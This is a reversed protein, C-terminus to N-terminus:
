KLDKSAKYYYYMTNGQMEKKVKDTEQKAESAINLTKMFTQVANPAIVVMSLSFIWNKLVDMAGLMTNTTAISTVLGGVLCGAKKRIEEDALVKRGMNKLVTTETALENLEEVRPAVEKSYIKLCDYQFDKDWPKSKIEESFSYIASRFRVLPAQMEKKFDLIEDVTASELTPLTMLINTALGAHVLAEQNINGLDFLKSTSLSSIIDNSTKDFLPYATENQITGLLNGFYGGALAEFNFNDDDYPFVSVINREVLNMIAEAGTSSTLQKMCDNLLAKSEELANNAKMQAIIEQKTRNKKKRLHIGYPAIQEKMRELQKSMEVSDNADIAKLLPIFSDLLSEIDRVSNMRSPLYRFVAYEAMGILEIEDAYLLSSKILKLDEEFDLSSSLTGITFKMKDM